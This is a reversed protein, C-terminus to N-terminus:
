HKGPEAQVAESYNGEKEVIKNKNKWMSLLSMVLVIGVLIPVAVRTYVRALLSTLEKSGYMCVALVYVFAGAPLLAMKGEVQSQGTDKRSRDAHNQGWRKQATEVLKKMCWVMYYLANEVFAFMSVLWIGCLLADQRELFGGPLKVMATLTLVAEEMTAVTPAGFIGTLLLFLVLNMCACVGFSQKLTRAADAHDSLNESLMPLCLSSMLFAFVLYSNKLFRPLETGFVPVWRATDVNHVAMFFLILLFIGAFWFLLEYMRGRSEIGAFLGYVALLVLLALVLWASTDRILYQRAISCLFRLGYAAGFLTTLLYIILLVSATFTGFQAELYSHYDMGAQKMRRMQGLVVLLLGYGAAFGAALAFFGDMGVAGALMGPLLLTSLAFYDYFVMRGLQRGSIKKNEIDM